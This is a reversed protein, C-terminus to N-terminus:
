WYFLVNIIHGDCARGLRPPPLSLQSLWSAQLICSLPLVLFSGEEFCPLSLVLEGFLQGKALVNGGYHPAEGRWIFLYM